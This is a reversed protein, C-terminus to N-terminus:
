AEAPLDATCFACKRAPLPIESLCLPCKKTSPASPGPLLRARRLAELMKKMIVFMAAAILFFNLLDGLFAGIRIKGLHWARYGGEAPLIYELLPMIIHTVLSNVMDGFAKGIVVAVALDIVNGKLAFSKFEQWLEEGKM